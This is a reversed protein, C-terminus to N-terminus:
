VCSRYHYVSVARSTPHYYEFSGGAARDVPQRQAVQLILSWVLWHLQVIVCLYRLVTYLCICVFCLANRLLQLEFCFTLYSSVFFNRVYIVFSKTIAVGISEQFLLCVLFAM